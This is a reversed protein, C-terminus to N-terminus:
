RRNEQLLLWGWLNGDPAKESHLQVYLRGKELDAIQIATLDFSGSVTGSAADTKSVALDLVNPGRVGRVPSKHIQAITAPSKLGDFTGTVALKAGTLVATVSGSGAITAQMSVDIPVPSLRARYTKPPQATLGAGGVVGILPLIAFWLWTSHRM